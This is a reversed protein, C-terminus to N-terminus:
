ARLTMDLRVVRSVLRREVGPKLNEAYEHGEPEDHLHPDQWTQERGSEDREPGDPVGVVSTISHLTLASDIVDEFPQTPLAVHPEVPLEALDQLLLPEALGIGELLHHGCGFGDVRRTARSQAVHDPLSRGVEGVDAVAGGLLKALAKRSPVTIPIVGTECPTASGWRRRGASSEAWM